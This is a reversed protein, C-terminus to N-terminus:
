TVALPLTAHVRFEGGPRGGAEVAGGYLAARERMGILGHGVRDDTRGTSGPVPNTITLSLAEAGYGVRVRAPARAGHKLANTLAEQVIRYASLDLGPPLPSPEGDFEV